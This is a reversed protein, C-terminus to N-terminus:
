WGKKIAEAIKERDEDSVWWGCPIHVFERYFKDLGPLECKSEAFVSHTDSRHHLTSATIGADEMRRIFDKRHEVKMTYLWYSPETNEYYPILTVGPVDKLVQDFYKGNEIYRNLVSPISQLQVRGIAATVNNMGYKYGARTIDNNLRSVKKDLGFWRLKRAPEVDEERIFAIAGGDVTTMQKIAQFSYCTFRSNSGIVKGDYRSGFSHAADEIIPIQYKTSIRNFADMDCVMGAYHVVVIAKTRETIKHEVSAADMLGTREDVDGWVIKAGTLAITTNTPEATMATSIVEDGAGIELLSLAIHLAATGSQLALLKNNGVFQKLEDEFDYVEQGEAIYGSYLIKEVAPMMQERPAIYPKVLPIM